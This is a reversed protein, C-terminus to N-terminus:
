DDQNVIIMEIICRGGYSNAAAGSGTFNFMTELNIKHTHTDSAEGELSFEIEEIRCPNITTLYNMKKGKVILPKVSEHTPDETPIAQGKKDNDMVIVFKNSLSPSNSFTQKEFNKINLYCVDKDTNWFSITDIYVKSRKDVVLPNVLESRFHIGNDWFRVQNFQSQEEASLISTVPDGGPKRPVAGSDFCTCYATDLILNKFEIGETQYTFNRFLNQSSNERNNDLQRGFNM